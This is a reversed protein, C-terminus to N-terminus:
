GLAWKRRVLVMMHALSPLILCKLQDHSPCQQRIKLAHLLQVPHDSQELVVVYDAGDNEKIGAFWSGHRMM